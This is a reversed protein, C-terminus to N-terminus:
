QTAILSITALQQSIATTRILNDIDPADNKDQEIAMDEPDKNEPAAQAAAAM